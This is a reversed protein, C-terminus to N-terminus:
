VLPEQGVYVSEGGRLFWKMVEAAALSPKRAPDAVACSFVESHEFGLEALAGDDGRIEPCDSLGWFKKANDHMQRQM